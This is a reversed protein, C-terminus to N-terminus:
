CDAASDEELPILCIFEFLTDGINKFQHEEDPPSFIVDGAALAIDEGQHVYVGNGQLIFVEHEWPHAHVPTHGGPKLTFVQLASKEAGARESIVWRLLVGKAGGEEVELPKVDSYNVKYM